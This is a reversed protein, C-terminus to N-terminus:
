HTLSVLSRFAHSSFPQLCEESDFGAGGLSKLPKHSVEAYARVCVFNFAKLICESSLTSLLVKRHSMFMGVTSLLQSSISM